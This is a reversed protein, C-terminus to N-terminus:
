RVARGPLSVQWGSATHRIEVNWVSALRKFLADTDPEIQIVGTFRKAAAAADVHVPVGLNRTLDAAIASLPVDQYVLRGDRWSGVTSAPITAILMATGNGPDDLTQGADLTVVQPGAAYRVTGEAVAIRVQGADRTVNFVTGVDQIRNEGVHLEFPANADHHVTLLAEGSELAAYRRDKHDFQMRTAGNLAIQTGDDLTVIRHEGAGTTVGYRQQTPLVSALVIMAVLAAAIAAYRQPSWRRWGPRPLAPADDNAAAPLPSQRDFAQDQLAVIDYAAAHQPDAELWDTFAEWDAVSADRLRIVWDIAEVHATDPTPKNQDSMSFEM